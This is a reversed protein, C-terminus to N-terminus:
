WWTYPKAPQLFLPVMHLGRFSKPAQLAAFWSGPTDAYLGQVVPM